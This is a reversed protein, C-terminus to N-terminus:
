ARRAARRNDRPTRVHAHRWAIRPLDLGRSTEDRGKGSEPPENRTPPTTTMEPANTTLGAALVKFTRDCPPVKRVDTEFPTNMDRGSELDMEDTRRRNDDTRSTAAIAVPSRATELPEAEASKSVTM